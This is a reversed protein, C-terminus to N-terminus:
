NALLIVNKTVITLFRIIMYYNWTRVKLQNNTFRKQQGAFQFFIMFDAQRVIARGYEIDTLFLQYLRINSFTKFFILTGNIRLHSILKVRSDCFSNWSEVIWIGSECKITSSLQTIFSHLYKSTLSEGSISVVYKFSFMEILMGRSQGLNNM